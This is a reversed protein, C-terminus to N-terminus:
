MLFRKTKKNNSSSTIHNLGPLSVESVNLSSMDLSSNSNLNLSSTIHNLGPLSVESVNLSSM